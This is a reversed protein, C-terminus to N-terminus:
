RREGACGKSAQEPGYGMSGATRLCQRYPSFYWHMLVALILGVAAIFGLRATM